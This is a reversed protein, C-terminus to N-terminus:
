SRDLKRTEDIGNKEENGIGAIIIKKWKRLDVVIKGEEYGKFIVNM